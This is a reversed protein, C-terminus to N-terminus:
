KECKSNRNQGPTIRESVEVHHPGTMGAAKGNQGMELSLLTPIIVRLPGPWPIFSATKTDRVEETVQDRSLFNGM